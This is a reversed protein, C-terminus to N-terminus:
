LKQTLFLLDGQMNAATIPLCSSGTHGCPKLSALACSALSAMSLPVVRRCLFAFQSSQFTLNCSLLEEGVGLAAGIIERYGGGGGARCLSGM